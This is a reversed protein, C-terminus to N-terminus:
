LRKTIQCSPIGLLFSLTEEKLWDSIKEEWMWVVLGM